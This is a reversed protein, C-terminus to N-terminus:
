KIISNKGVRRLLLRGDVFEAVSPFGEADYVLKESKHSHLILGPPLIKDNAFVVSDVSHIDINTDQKLKAVMACSLYIDDLYTVYYKFVYLFPLFRVGDKNSADYAEGVKLILRDSVFQHISCSYQNLFEFASHTSYLPKDICARLIIRGDKSAFSYSESIFDM